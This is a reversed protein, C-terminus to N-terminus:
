VVGSGGFVSFYDFVGGSSTLNGIPYPKDTAFVHMPNLSSVHDDFEGETGKWSPLEWGVEIVPLSMGELVRNIKSYSTLPAKFSAM